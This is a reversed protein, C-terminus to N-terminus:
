VISLKINEPDPFGFVVMGVEVFTWKSYYVRFLPYFNRINSDPPWLKPGIAIFSVGNSTFNFEVGLPLSLKSIRGLPEAAVEFIRFHVYGCFRELAEAFRRISRPGSGNSKSDFLLSVIKLGGWSQSRGVKASVQSKVKRSWFKVSIEFRVETKVESTLNVNQRNPACTAVLKPM